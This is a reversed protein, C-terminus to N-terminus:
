SARRRMYSYQIIPIFSGEEDTPEVVRQADDAIFNDFYLFEDTGLSGAIVGLYNRWIYGISLTQTMNSYISTGDVWVQVGADGTGNCVYHVEIWLKTDTAFNTASSALGGAEEIQFVTPAGASGTENIISIKVTTSFDSPLIELITSGLFAGYSIGSDIYLHFGYYIDTDGVGTDIYGHGTGAGVCRMGYTGTQTAITSADFTALNDVTADFQSLDGTEFDANFLEAM